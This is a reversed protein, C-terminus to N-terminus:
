CTTARDGGSITASGSGFYGISDNGGDGTAELSAFVGELVNLSDDGAGFNGIISAIGDFTEERGFATM